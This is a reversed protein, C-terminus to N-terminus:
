PTGGGQSMFVFVPDPSDFFRAPYIHPSEHIAGVDEKRFGLAIPIGNMCTAPSIGPAQGRM